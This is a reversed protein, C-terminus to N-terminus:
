ENFGADPCAWLARYECDICPGDDNDSASLSATPNATEYILLQLYTVSLLKITLTWFDFINHAKIQLVFYRKIQYKRAVSGGMM